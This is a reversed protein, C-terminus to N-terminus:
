DDWCCLPRAARLPGATTPSPYLIRGRGRSLILCADGSPLPCQVWPEEANESVVIRTWAWEEDAGPAYASPVGCVVRAGRVVDSALVAAVSWPCRTLADAIVAARALIPASALVLFPSVDHLERLTIAVAFVWATHWRAGRRCFEQQAALTTEIARMDAEHRRVAHELGSYDAARVCVEEYVRQMARRVVHARRYRAHMGKKARPAKM